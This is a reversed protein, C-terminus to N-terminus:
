AEKAWAVMAAGCSGGWVAWLMVWGLGVWSPNQGMVTALVFFVIVGLVIGILSGLFLRGISQSKTLAGVLIPWLLWGLLFLVFGLLGGIISKWDSFIKGTAMQYGLVPGVGTLLFVPIYLWPIEAQLLLSFATAAIATFVGAYLSGMWPSVAPKSGPQAAAVTM